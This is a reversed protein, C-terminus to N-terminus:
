LGGNIHQIEKTLRDWVEFVTRSNNKAGELLETGRKTIGFRKGTKVVIGEQELWRLSIQMEKDTPVAHNIADACFLTTTRDALGNVLAM